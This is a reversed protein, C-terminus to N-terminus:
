NDQEKLFKKLVKYIGFGTAFLSIFIGLLLFLPLTGFKKDLWVGAIVCLVLPISIEYGIELIVGPISTQKNEKKM